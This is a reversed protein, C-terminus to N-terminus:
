RHQLLKFIPKKQRYMVSMYTHACTALLLYQGCEPLVHIYLGHGDCWLGEIWAGVILPTTSSYEYVCPVSAVVVIFPVLTSIM